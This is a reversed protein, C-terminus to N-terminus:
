DIDRNRKTHMQSIEIAETENYACHLLYQTVHRFLEFIHKVVNCIVKVLEATNYSSSLEKKQICILASTFILPPSSPQRRPGGKKWLHRPGKKSLKDSRNQM